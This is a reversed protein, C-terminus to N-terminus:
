AVDEPTSGGPTKRGDDRAIIAADAVYASAVLAAYVQGVDNRDDVRALIAIIRSAFNEARLRRDDDITTPVKLGLKAAAAQIASADILTGPKTFGAV